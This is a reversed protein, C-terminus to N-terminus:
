TFWGPGFRGLHWKVMGGQQTSQHCMPYPVHELDSYKCFTGTSISYGGGVACRPKPRAMHVELIHWPRQGRRMARALIPWLYHTVPPALQSYMLLMDLAKESTAFQITLEVNGMRKGGTVTMSVPLWGLRCAYPVAWRLTAGHAVAATLTDQGRPSLWAYSGSNPHSPCRPSCGLPRPRRHCRPTRRGHRPLRRAPSRTTPEM